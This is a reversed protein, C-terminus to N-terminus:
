VGMDAIAGEDMFKKRWNTNDCITSHSKQHRPGPQLVVAPKKSSKGARIHSFRSVARLCPPPLIDNERDLIQLPQQCCIRRGTGRRPGAEMGKRAKPMRGLRIFGFVQVIQSSMNVRTIFAALDSNIYGHKKRIQSAIRRKRLRKRCISDRRQQIIEVIFTGCGNPLVVAKEVLRDPVGDHCYEVKRDVVLVVGFTSHESCPLNLAAALQTTFTVHSLTGPQVSTFEANADADVGALGAESLEASRM